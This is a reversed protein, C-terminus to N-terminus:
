PTVIAFSADFTDLMAFFEDTATENGSVSFETADADAPTILGSALQAFWLHSTRITADPEDAHRGATFHLAGHRIGIVGIEDRDTVSLNFTFARDGIADGNLRVGILDVLMETTMARLVDVNSAM